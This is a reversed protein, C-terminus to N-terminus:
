LKGRTNIDDLTDSRYQMEKALCDVDTKCGNRTQKLWDAQSAALIKKQAASLRDYAFAYSLNLQDDAHWLSKTACVTQEAPNKNKVTSCWNPPSEQAFMTGVSSVLIAAAAAVIFSTRM